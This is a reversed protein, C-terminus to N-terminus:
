TVVNSLGDARASRPRGDRAPPPPQGIAEQRALRVAHGAGRLVNNAQMADQGRRRFPDIAREDVRVGHRSPQRGVAEGALDMAHIRLDAPGVLHREGIEGGALAKGEAARM